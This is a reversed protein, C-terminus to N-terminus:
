RAPDPAAAPEAASSCQPDLGRGIRRRCLVAGTTMVVMSGLWIYTGVLPRPRGLNCASVFLYLGGLVLATMGAVIARSYRRRSLQICGFFLIPNALWTTSFLLGVVTTSRPNEVLSLAGLVLTLCGLAFAHIGLQVGRIMDDPSHYGLDIAPTACAILFIIATLLVVRNEPRRPLRMAQEFFSVSGKPLV